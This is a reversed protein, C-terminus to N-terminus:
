ANEVAEPARSAAVDQLNAKRAGLMPETLSLFVPDGRKERYILFLTFGFLVSGVITGIVIGAIAGGSFTVSSSPYEAPTPYLAAIPIDYEMAGFRFGSVRTNTVAINRKATLPLYLAQNHLATLAQTYYSQRTAADTTSASLQIWTVLQSKTPNSMNSTVVTDAEGSGWVYTMDFLKTSADYSPGWTESYAIDFSISGNVGDYGPGLWSDMAANYDAKEMPLPVVSVGASYLNAIVQSAIINQHPVDKLYIFKLPRQIDSPRASTSAALTAISMLNPINCYPSAPDFLTDMPDEEGLEASYLSQRDILGMVVKRLDPTNLVGASNLAIVRTNLNVSSTHAVLNVGEQTALTVYAAPSLVNLGYAVDLSGDLLAAKIAAQSAYARLIVTDYTPKSRHSGFKKFHVEAVYENNNYICKNGFYCSANFAASPLLRPPASLGTQLLKAVVTYPGTGIPAAVGRCTYLGDRTVRPAGQKWASCSIDGNTIQPLAAPSIMRFPRVFTLERLAPEYYSSFTLQFTFTNVVAWSQLAGPLAYWDHFGAFSKTAGGLIHDFNLKAAEANWATGDHFRVDTRLMFTIVYPANADRAVIDYNTIWSIALAGVVGDDATGAIGDAGVSNPDWSTLGEFVWDNTVFENPRYAHPNMAGIDDGIQFLGTQVSPAIVLTTGTGARVGMMNACLFSFFVLM